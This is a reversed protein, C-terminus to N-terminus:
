AKVNWGSCSRACRYSSRRTSMTSSRIRPSSRIFTVIFNCRSTPGRGRRAEDMAVQDFAIQKAGKGAVEAYGITKVGLHRWALNVMDHPRHAELVYSELLTDHAVGGLVLGHNALVHQDYKLNQGLKRKAPDAFWPALRALVDDIPLQDPAGPYPHTLQLYCAHGPEIAFSLGVIKADLPNLSTTETDVCVLESKEIAIM